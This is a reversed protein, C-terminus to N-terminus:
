SLLTLVAFYKREQQEIQEKSMDYTWHPRRPMDLPSNPKYVEDIDIEMDEFSKFVLPNSANRKSRKLEDPSEKLFVLNFSISVFHVLLFCEHICSSLFLM